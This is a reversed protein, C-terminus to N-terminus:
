TEGRENEIRVLFARGQAVNLWEFEVVQVRGEDLLERLANKWDLPVWGLPVHPEEIEPRGGSRRWLRGTRSDFMEMIHRKQAPRDARQVYAAAHAPVYDETGDLYEVHVSSGLREVRAVGRPGADRRRDGAWHDLVQGKRLKTALVLELRTESM